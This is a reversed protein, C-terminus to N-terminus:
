RMLPNECYELFLVYVAMSEKYANYPIVCQGPYQLGTQRILGISLTTTNFNPITTIYSKIEARKKNFNKVKEKEESTKGTYVKHLRTSKEKDYLHSVGYERPLMSLRLNLSDNYERVWFLKEPEWKEEYRFSIYAVENREFNDISDPHLTSCDVDLTVIKGTRFVLLATDNVEMVWGEPLKDNIKKLITDQKLLKTTRDNQANVSLSLVIIGFIILFSTKM